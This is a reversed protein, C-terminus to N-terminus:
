ADLRDQRDGFMLNDQSRSSPSASTRCGSTACTSRATATSATTSSTARAASCRSSTSASPDAGTSGHATPGAPARRRRRSRGALGAGRRPHRSDQKMSNMTVREPVPKTKDRATYWPMLLFFLFYVVTLIRAVCPRWTRAASCRGATPSSAGSPSRCWASTAWCWSALGRVGRAVGQVAHRSLPDVEGRRSRALAPLLVDRGVRGDGARGLVALRLVVPVARLIAYYPTFYWVPAIHEPTKLPDAPIFNNYELFYGGMEPM